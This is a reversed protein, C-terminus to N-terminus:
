HRQCVRGLEIMKRLGKFIDQGEAVVGCKCPANSAKNDKGLKGTWKRSLKTMRINDEDGGIEEMGRKLRDRNLGADENVLVGRGGIVNMVGSRGNTVVAVAKAKEAFGGAANVSSAASTEM